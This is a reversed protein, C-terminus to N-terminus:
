RLRVAQERLDKLSAELRLNDVSGPPVQRIALELQSTARDLEDIAEFYRALSEHSGAQDDLREQVSALQRWALADPEATSRLYGQAVQMAEGLRRDRILQELRKEVISYRDPYLESLTALVRDDSRENVLSNIDARLLEVMPHASIMSDLEQLYRRASEVRNARQHILALAYSTGVTANRQHQAQYTRMLEGADGDSLVSLRARFLSYDPNDLRARRQTSAARDTAEAIRNNDLPHTRLYELQGASTNLSNKRRLIAFSEAMARADYGANALIEIGIRDAEVENSRTFNIASQQSAALGAALAAQGAQPSAQGIIIAALVAAATSLTARNGTAFARAHHRQTVHAVEHAVVSALQEERDMAAILGSNVGVYGGPIAFANIQPDDIIFFTFNRMDNKGAASVLRSGLSQIYESLQVDRILPLQARIQRMFQAGLLREEIPSLANDAPEGMSPLNQQASTMGAPIALLMGFLIAAFLRLLGGPLPSVRCNASQCPPNSSVNLILPHLDSVDTQDRNHQKTRALRDRPEERAGTVTYM